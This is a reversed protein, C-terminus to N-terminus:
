GLCLGTAKVLAIEMGCFQCPWIKKSILDFYDLNRLIGSQIGSDLHTKGIYDM